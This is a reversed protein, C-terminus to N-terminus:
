RAMMKETMLCWYRYSTFISQSQFYHTIKTVSTHDCIATSAAYNKDTYLRSSSYVTTACTRVKQYSKLGVSHKLFDDWCKQNYSMETGTNGYNASM